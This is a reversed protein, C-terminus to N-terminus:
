PPQYQTLGKGGKNPDLNFKGAYGISVSIQAQHTGTMVWTVHYACSQYGEGAEVM